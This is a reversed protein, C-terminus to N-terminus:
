EKKLMSRGQMLIEKNRSIIDANESKIHDIILENDEMYDLLLEVAKEALQDTTVNRDEALRSLRKSLNSPISANIPVRNEASM